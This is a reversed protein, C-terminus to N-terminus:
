APLNKAGGRIILKRRAGTLTLFGDADLAGLDGTRIRGRSHVKITGDEALYRYPHDPFGGIEVHGIEGTPLRRGDDGVIALDHYAFPRASPASAANNARFDRRDLKSRQLRLRARDPHRIEARFRKWEELLLPASSSTIFRLKPVDTAIRRRRAM